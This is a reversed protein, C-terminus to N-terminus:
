QDQAPTETSMTLVRMSLTAVCRRGTIVHNKKDIESCHTYEHVSPIKTVSINIYILATMAM